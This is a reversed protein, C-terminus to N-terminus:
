RARQIMAAERFAQDLDIGWDYAISALLPDDRFFESAHRLDITAQDRMAADPISAIADNVDALTKGKVSRLWTLVQWVTASKPVCSATVVPPSPWAVPGDGSDADPVARVSERWAAWAEREVQSAPSDAAQTWDSESLLVDRLAKVYASRDLEFDPLGRSNSARLVAAVIKPPPPSVVISGMDDVSISADVPLGLAELCSWEVPPFRSM